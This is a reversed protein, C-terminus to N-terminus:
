TNPAPPTPPATPPPLGGTSEYVALQSGYFTLRLLLKVVLYAQALLFTLVIGLVTSQTAGPAILTYAALLAVGVLGLTLYLGLTLRPHRLIVRVAHYLARLPNRRGEVVTDIRAYDFILNILCLLFVILLGGAIAAALVTREVTIDRTADDITSLLWRALLYVGTYLIGSLAALALLRPFFRASNSLFGAPPRSEHRSEQRSSLRSLIGGQLFTWLLLYASGLLLIAPPSHWLDGSLWAELNAFFAGAGMLTPSFTALLGRASAQLEGFWAMDFGTRLNEHVLSAGISTRLADGLAVAVTAAVLLNILWLALVLRRASTARATGVVIARRISIAM